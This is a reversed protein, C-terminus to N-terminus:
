RCRVVRADIAYNAERQWGNWVLLFGEPHPALGTFVTYSQM